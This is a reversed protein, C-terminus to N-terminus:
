LSLFKDRKSPLTREKLKLPKDVNLIALAQAFVLLGKFM